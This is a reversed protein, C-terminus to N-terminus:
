ITLGSREACRGWFYFAVSKINAVGVSAASSVTNNAVFIKERAVGAKELRAVPFDSYVINADSLRGM